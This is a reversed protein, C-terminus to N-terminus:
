LDVIVYELECAATDALVFPATATTALRFMCFDGPKLQILDAAGTGPRIEIFNTADRNIGIFYGGVTIDGILLAEEAAFGVNQVNHLVNGGAVDFTTPSFTLSVDKSGKEFSLSARLTLEDAM